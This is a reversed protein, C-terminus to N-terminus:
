AEQDLAEPSGHERLHGTIKRITEYVDNAFADHDLKALSLFFFFLLLIPFLTLVAQLTYLLLRRCRVFHKVLHVLRRLQPRAWISAAGGTAIVDGFLFGLARSKDCFVLGQGGQAHKQRRIKSTEEQLVQSDALHESEGGKKRNDSYKRSAYHLLTCTKLFFLLLLFIPHRSLTLILLLSSLTQTLFCTCTPPLYVLM